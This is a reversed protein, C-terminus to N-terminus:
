LDGCSFSATPGAAWGKDEEGLRTAAVCRFESAITHSALM